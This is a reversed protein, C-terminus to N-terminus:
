KEYNLEKESLQSRAIEKYVECNKLLEKHTGLGVMEGEELVLIQDANIVTGIRQAVIITTKDLHKKLADRVNKDTKYDLASFSDDFIFIEPNKMIARAISLRQKQGGSINTGRSAIPADLKNELKNVFETASAIDLAKYIDDENTNLSGYTVNSRVTGGFIIAKQPVLGIKNNLEKEKYDKINQGDIIIEGSTVDYFRNILNVISTKGSATAGIIALTQKPEVKFSLDKITYDEADSYKFSVNKFEITGNKEKNNKTGELVSTKTELVELVRKGSVSARPYIIIILVLMIFAMIVQVAYQSFVIMDGFLVLKKIGISNSIMYAGTLYIAVSLSSMVLMMTPNLLSMMRNIYLNTDTLMSNAEDFKNLRNEEANFAKIVRIGTINERSITNVKDILKQVTKTKPLVFTIIVTVLILLMFIAGGTIATWTFSKGAIKTIAAASLIPVKILIQLGMAIFVQINTIDNTTRILLSSVSFKKIEAKRFGMVSKFVEKRLNQSYSAAIKSVFFGTTVASIFSGIACLLMKGGPILIERLSENNEQLAKTMDSMFDPLLLDLYVQIIIFIFVPIIMFMQKKNLKKILKIM